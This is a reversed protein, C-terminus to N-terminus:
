RSGEEVPDVRQFVAPLATRFEAPVPTLVDCPESFDHVAGCRDCVPVDAASPGVRTVVLRRIHAPKIPDTEARYYAVIALRCAEFGLGDLAWQWAEVAVDGDEDIKRADYAAAIGLLRAAESKKV